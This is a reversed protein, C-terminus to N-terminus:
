EQVQCQSLGHESSTHPDALVLRKEQKLAMHKRETAHVFLLVFWCSTWSTMERAKQLHNLDSKCSHQQGPGKDQWTPELPSGTQVRAGASCTHRCCM